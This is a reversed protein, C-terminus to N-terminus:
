VRVIRSISNLCVEKINKGTFGDYEACGLLDIVCQHFSMDIQEFDEWVPQLEYREKILKAPILAEMESYSEYFVKIMRFLVYKAPVNELVWEQDFWILTDDKLFANQLIMDIYAVRLIPGYKKEDLVAAPNIDYLINKTWEVEESSKLIDEYVKDIIQLVRELDNKKYAAVVIEELSKADCYDTVLNQDCWASRILNVGRDELDAEQKLINEVHGTGVESNLAFKEVKGHKLIRTGVQYEAFRKSSLSAFTVEGVNGKVSCEVLFSNAFFEFVGNQVVDDYIRSEDAVLTKNDPVYYFKVNHMCGNKPLYDQSYIVSPLKYDPMPYYFYTNDFGSAQLIDKLMKKSFTRIGNNSYMYQNMGDFPISTHDERDGCWYKLGYQNEIAVLLKGDPKLLGKVKKLFDVYPNVGNTYKGQYELVGILTIYDFKDEFQIDNLNGVIIELNDKDRCRLLAGTARKKSLEVATVSQCKECLMNTIAGFGCGIELVKADTRFPYWNLINKRIHTLHYFTPWSYQKAIADVYDESKNDAILQIIVDEVDGDCYLDENNYWDLCFRPKVDMTKILEDLNM